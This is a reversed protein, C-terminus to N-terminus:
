KSDPDLGPVKYNTPSPQSVDHSLLMTPGVVYTHFDAVVLNYVAAPDSEEENKEVRAMGTTTHIPTGPKLDRAKQWGSGSVWFHHGASAQFTTEGVTISAVKVAPRVTTQLVPKFDLEGSEVDKALVRDGCQIKEIPVFGSETLIPTGAVLCSCASVQHNALTPPLRIKNRDVCCKKPLPQTATYLSWWAWWYQPNTSFEQGTVDALTTAARRNYEDARDNEDDIKHVLAQDFDASSRADDNKSRATPTGPTLYHYLYCRRISFETHLDLTLPILNFEVLYYRDAEERMILRPASSGEDLPKVKFPSRMRSLLNPAFDDIRRGKLNQNAAKRVSPLDSQVAIEALGQTAEFGNIAGLQECVALGMKESQQSALVLAPVAAPTQVDKLQDVAQKQQRATSAFNRAIRDVVPQWTRLDEMNRRAIARFERVEAPSLWRDGFQTFGMRKYVPLRNFSPSAHQLALMLHTREQDALHHAQCWNALKLQGEGTKPASERQEGYEQLLALDTGSRPSEAQSWGSGVKVFGAQWWASNTASEPHDTPHLSSRRDLSVTEQLTEDSLVQRVHQSDGNSRVAPTAAFVQSYCVTALSTLAMRFIIKRM